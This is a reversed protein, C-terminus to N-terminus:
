KKSEVRYVRVHDIGKVVSFLYNPNRKHFRHVRTRLTKAKKKMEEKTKVPIKFSDGIAMDLLPLHGIFERKTIRDPLPVDKEITIRHAM